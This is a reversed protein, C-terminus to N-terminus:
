RVAEESEMREGAMKVWIRHWVNYRGRLPLKLLIEACALSINKLEESHECDDSNIYDICWNIHQDEFNGDDLVIHLPGGASGGKLTYIRLALEVARNEYDERRKKNM